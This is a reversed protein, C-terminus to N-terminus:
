AASLDADRAVYAITEDPFKTNIPVGVAGSRMIAFFTAVFEASNAGLLGYHARPELALTDALTSIGRNLEGFTFTRPEPTSLDILATSSSDGSPTDGLNM